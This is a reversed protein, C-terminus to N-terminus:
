SMKQYHQLRSYKTTYQKFTQWLWDGSPQVSAATQLHECLGFTSSVARQCWWLIAQVRSLFDILHSVNRSLSVRRLHLFHFDHSFPMSQSGIICLVSKSPRNVFQRLEVLLPFNIKTTLNVSIQRQTETMRQFLFTPYIRLLM